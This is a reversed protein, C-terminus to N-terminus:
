KVIPKLKEIQQNLFKIHDQLEHIKTTKKEDVDKLDNLEILLDDYEQKLKTRLGEIFLMQDKATNMVIQAIEADVKPKDAKSKDRQVLYTGGAAILAVGLGALIQTWTPM